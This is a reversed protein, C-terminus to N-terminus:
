FHGHTSVSYLKAIKYWVASELETFCYTGVKLCIVFTEIDFSRTSIHPYMEIYERPLYSYGNFAGRSNNALFELISSVSM